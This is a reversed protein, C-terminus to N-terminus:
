DILLRNVQFQDGQRVVVQYLGAKCKSLDLGVNQLGGTLNTSFQHVTKGNLDIISVLAEESQETQLIMTAFDRAPNPFIGFSKVASTEFLGTTTAPGKNFYFIGTSSGDFGTFVMKWTSGQRDTVFYVISDSIIWANSNLDFAKWDYGITNIAEYFSYGASSSIATDVPYAKAVFVSDNSLVGTVKYTIPSVAMYQCFTLDWTNYVPERDISVNNVLSYYGFYKGIFNSKALSSTIENTGDLNAWKFNYVGGSLSIIMLKRYDSAGIKIFYISDGTVIHSFPDYTGWGLDFDNATDNTLNFAGYDWSTDSNLLEYAPNSVIGTTDAYSMASWQSVDKNAKWLRVNNKSNILISAPFGRIQFAVDWDTNSVNSLEGNGMSYFVQNTYGQQISVLDSVVQAKSQTSGLLLTIIVITTKFIKM